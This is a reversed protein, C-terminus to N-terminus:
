HYRGKQFEDGLRRPFQLFALSGDKKTYVSTIQSGAPNTVNLRVRYFNELGVGTASTVNILEASVNNPSPGLINNNITSVTKQGAEQPSIAEERGEAYHLFNFGLSVILVGLLFGIIQKQSVGSSELDFRDRYNQYRDKLNMDVM